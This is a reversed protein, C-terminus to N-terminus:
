SSPASRGEGINFVVLNPHNVSTLYEFPQGQTDQVVSRYLLVAHQDPLNLAQAEAATAVSVSIVSEGVAAAIGYRDALVQYLSAGDLLDQAALGPVRQASLYSTELCFPVDDVLRLRRIVVVPSGAAVGLKEAVRGSAVGTQFELLRGGARGGTAAVMQTISHLHAHNLLRRVKPSSVRTGATSDRTLLGMRVLADVARRVTMRSVGLTLALERESPVKDGPQYEGGTVLDQLHQQVKLYRRPTGDDTM